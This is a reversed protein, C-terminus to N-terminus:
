WWATPVSSPCSVSPGTRWGAACPPPRRSPRWSVNTRWSRAGRERAIDITDSEVYRRIGRQVYRIEALQRDARRQLGTLGWRGAGAPRRAAVEPAQAAVDKWLPHLRRLRRWAYARTGAAPLALGTLVLAAAVTASLPAVGNSLWLAEHGAWSLVFGALKCACYVLGIWCGTALVRLGRALWSPGVQRAYRPCLTGLGALSTGFIALYLVLFTMVGPSATYATTFDRPHEVGDPRGAAFCLVAAAWAVAVVAVAVRARARARARSEAGTGSNWRLLLVFAGAAFVVVASHLLVMSLNPVGTLGDFWRYVGPASFVFVTAVGASMVCTLGLDTNGRDGLWARAKFAVVAWAAGGFCLYLM